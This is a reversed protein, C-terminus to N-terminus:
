ARPRAFCRKRSVTTCTTFETLGRKGGRVWVGSGRSHGWDENVGAECTPLNKEAIASRRPMLRPLSSELPKPCSTRSLMTVGDLGMANQMHSEYAVDGIDNGLGLSTM